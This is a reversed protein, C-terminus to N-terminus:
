LVFYNYSISAQDFTQSPAGDSQRPLAWVSGLLSGTEKGSQQEVVGIGGGSMVRSGQGSVPAVSIIYNGQCPGTAEAAIRGLSFLYPHKNAPLSPPRCAPAARLNGLRLKVSTGCRLELLIDVQFEALVTQSQSGGLYVTQSDLM